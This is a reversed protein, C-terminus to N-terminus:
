LFRRVLWAELSYSGVIECKGCGVNSIAGWRNQLCISCRFKITNGRKTVAAIRIIIPSPGKKMAMSATRYLHLVTAVHKTTTAETSNKAEKLHPRWTLPFRADIAYFICNSKVPTVTTRSSAYFGYDTDTERLGVILGNLQPVYTDGCCLALNKGTQKM